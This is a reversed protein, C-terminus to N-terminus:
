KSKIQEELDKIRIAQLRNTEELNGITEQLEVVFQRQDACLRAYDDGTMNMEEILSHANMKAIESFSEQMTIDHINVQSLTFNSEFMKKMRDSLTNSGQSSKGSTKESFGNENAIRTVTNNLKEKMTTYSSILSTDQNPSNFEANILRDIKDLQLFTKVMLIVNQLKHPDQEVADTLYGASTNYLFKLQEDTYGGDIYPDYGVLSIVNDKNKRDEISWSRTRDYNDIDTASEAVPNQMTSFQKMNDAFSLGKHKRNVMALYNGVSFKCNDYLSKAIEEDYYYGFDCCFRMMADLPDTTDCYENYIKEACEKCVCIRDDQAAFLPSGTKKYFSNEPRKPVIGCRTCKIQKSAFVFMEGSKANKAQAARQDARLELLDM